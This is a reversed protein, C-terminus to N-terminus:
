EGVTIECVQYRPQRYRASLRSNLDMARREASERSMFLEFWRARIDIVAFVTM